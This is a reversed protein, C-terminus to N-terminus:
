LTNQARSSMPETKSFVYGPIWLSL